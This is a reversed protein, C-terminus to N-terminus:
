KPLKLTVGDGLLFYDLHAAIKNDKTKVHTHMNSSHHTFIGHHQDSYFGLIEVDEEISGDYVGSKIHKEHTHESDNEDWNVIHWKIVTALGSVIFPFPETIDIGTEIAMEIIFDELDKQNKVTVPVEFENWDKVSSYVLFSAKYNFSNDIIFENDLNRGEKSRSIYPVSNFIMVEGKLGELAGLAYFNEENEFDKLNAYASLDNKKMANKLAGKYEVNFKHQDNSCSSLMSLAFIYFVFLKM